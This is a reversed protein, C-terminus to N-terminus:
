SQGRRPLGTDTSLQFWSHWILPYQPMGASGKEFALCSAETHSPCYSSGCLRIRVLAARLKASFHCVASRLTDRDAMKARGATSLLPASDPFFTPWRNKEMVGFLQLFSASWCECTPLFIYINHYMIYCCM